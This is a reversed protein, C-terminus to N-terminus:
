ASFEAGSWNVIAILIRERAGDYSSRVNAPLNVNAVNATVLSLIPPPRPPYFRLDRKWPRYVFYAEVRGSKTGLLSVVPTNPNLPHRPRRATLITKPFISFPRKRASLPRSNKDILTHMLGYFDTNLLNDKSLPFRIPSVIKLLSLYKIIVRRQTHLIWLAFQSLM